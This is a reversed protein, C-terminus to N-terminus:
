PLGFGRLILEAAFLVLIPVFLLRVFQNSLGPLVRTGIYSGVITGLVLPATLLPEVYGAGILLSVGAAGTVGIMFNSTATSVKVPLGLARDLALVKLVGGGIGFLGSIVGAGFMVGFAPTTRGATYEVERDLHRDFYSGGLGLKRSLADPENTPRVRGRLLLLTGPVTALMVLGLGVLLLPTFGSRTAYITLAAGAFAGPVTAIELLMGIRVNTLRDEVFTAGATTSTAIITLGSAGVAVPFPVGVFVVLVPILVLGGGIGALSGVLGAAVAILGLLLLEIGLIM